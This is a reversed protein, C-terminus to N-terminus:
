SQRGPLSRRWERLRGSLRSAVAPNTAAANDREKDSKSFDYLELRSGDDNMLLKWDGSRIAMNPSRDEPLGPYAYTEDRGYEWFLDGKRAQPRGLFAASMDEGDFKVAPPRIGALSCFTPFFDLSSAVTTDNVRGAPARGKWRVILPERIGGEYLSWKRGRLGATSGPPQLGEKYYRPWATPGNDGLFVILTNESQGQRDICRM